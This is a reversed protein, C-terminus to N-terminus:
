FEDDDMGTPDIDNQGNGDCALLENISAVGSTIKSWGGEVSDIRVLGCAMGSALISARKLSSCWSVCQVAVIQPYTAVPSSSQLAQSAKLNAAKKKTKETAKGKKNNTMKTQGVQENTVATGDQSRPEPMLNDLMRLESNNRNFDMRYVKPAWMTARSRYKQPRILSALGCAGDAAAYALFSHFDSAAIQWILGLQVLIKKSVGLDRPKLYIAKISYDSDALHLCGLPPSFVISTTEGREHMLRTSAALDVTDLLNVSGDYGTTALFTPDGDIDVQGFQNVPPTRVWTISRVPASHLTLFHTPRIFLPESGLPSPCSQLVSHLHWIAINGNICGGAILDHNAWDLTLCSTDSLLLWAVPTLNLVAVHNSIKPDTLPDILSNVQAPHPVSYLGVKGNLLAIAILGLSSISQSAQFPEHSTQFFHENELTSSTRYGGRPCWRVCTAQSPLALLMSLQPHEITEQHWSPYGNSGIADFGLHPQEEQTNKNRNVLTESLKQPELFPIKWIQIASKIDTKQNHIESPPLLGPDQSLTSIALFDCSIEDQHKFISPPNRRLDTGPLFDMSWVPAGANFIYGAKEPVLKSLRCSAFRQFTIKNQSILPKGDHDTQHVKFPGAYLNLSGLTSNTAWHNSLNHYIILDPSWPYSQLLPDPFQVGTSLFDQIQHDNVLYTLILNPDLTLHNYWGGWLDNQRNLHLNWKSKYWSTDSSLEVTPGYLLNAEAAQLRKRLLHNLQIPKSQLEWGYSHQYVLHVFAPPEWLPGYAKLHAPLTKSGHTENHLRPLIPSNSSNQGFQSPGQLKIQASLKAQSPTSKPPRFVFRANRTISMIPSAPQDSTSISQPDLQNHNFSEHNKSSNSQRHNDQPHHLILVKRAKSSAPPSQDSLKVKKSPNLDEINDDAADSLPTLPSLAPDSHQLSEQDFNEDNSM